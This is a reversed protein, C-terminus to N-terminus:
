LSNWYEWWLNPLETNEPSVPPIVYNDQWVTFGTPVTYAPPTSTANFYCTMNVAAEYSAAIVYWEEGTDTPLTAIPNTGASPNGSKEWGNPTGLWLKGADIDIAIRLRWNSNWPTTLGTQLQVNNNRLSNDFKCWVWDYTRGSGGPHWRSVISGIPRHCVGFRQEYPTSWLMLEAYWKGTTHAVASNVTGEWDTSTKNAIQKGYGGSFTVLASNDDDWEPYVTAGPSSLTDILWESARDNFKGQAVGEQDWYIHWLDDLQRVGDSPPVTILSRIYQRELDKNNALGFLAVLKDHKLQSINTM